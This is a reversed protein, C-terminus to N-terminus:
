EGCSKNKLFSDLAEKIQTTLESINYEKYFKTLTFLMNLGAGGGASFGASEGVIGKKFTGILQFSVGKGATAFGSIAFGGGTLEMPNDLDVEGVEISVGWGMGPGLGFAGYIFGYAMNNSRDIIFFTGGEGGFFKVGGYGSANVIIYKKLGLPDIVNIPDLGVYVSLNSDGGGFGVPDKATWRGIKADYDRAGFRVLGTEEDYLGGAYGFPQFATNTNLLENGFEDYDIQQTINGTIANVVFRISGLHDSIIQYISDNKFMYDPTYDRSAYIFRAEINGLSDLIAVPSFQNEYLWGKIFKGNILEGIRRNKGDIIYEIFTNNPLLVAVLNGFNDYKYWTTDGDVAKYKLSGNASYGYSIDGYSLMRDQDNYTGFVTVDSTTHSIRNGNDDYTYVSITTDNRNVQVLRGAVDYHYDFINTDGLVIETLQSIRGIEDLEYSTDFLDNGNYKANFGPVEGFANYSYNTTVNGLSTGSLLGNQVNRSVSLDGAGILLGDNDYTFSVANGENVSQSTVRFDSDYTVSVQGNVTGKWSVSTPLSGDYTYSLTDNEPSIIHRLQGIIRGM